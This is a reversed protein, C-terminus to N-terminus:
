SSSEECNLKFIRCKTESLAGMYVENNMYIPCGDLICDELPLTQVRNYQQLDPMANWTQLTKNDQLYAAVIVSSDISIQCCRSMVAQVKSGPMSVTVYLMVIQDVKRLDAVMYRCSPHVTTPRTAILIYGSRNCFNMSVFPGTVTLKTAQVSQGATYEYFWISQLKCVLFGGFPFNPEKPPISCINIVPSMDGATTQENLVNNPQRVDYTYTNGHQTGVYLLKTRSTDFAVSWIPKDCPNFAGACQRNGVNYLKVTTDMSAAAMLQEDSDFTLDRIQKSSMHLFQSPRFTPLDIFRVGFGAFLSQTSKQSIILSNIQRGHILVRCGPDQCINITRERFLKYNRTSSSSSCPLQTHATTAQYKYRSLEQEMEHIQIGLKNSRSREIDLELTLMAQKQQLDAIKNNQTDVQNRLENDQDM